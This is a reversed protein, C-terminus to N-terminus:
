ELTARDPAREEGRVQKDLLRRYKATQWLAAVAILLGLAAVVTPGADRVWHGQKLEDVSKQVEGVSREIDGLKTL